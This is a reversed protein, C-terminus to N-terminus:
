YSHHVRICKYLKIGSRLTYATEKAEATVEQFCKINFPLTQYCICKGPVYGSDHSSVWLFEDHDLQKDFCSQTM